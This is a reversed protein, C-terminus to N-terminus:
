RGPVAGGPIAPRAGVTGVAAAGLRAGAALAGAPGAGALWSALLGAAFADGAGTPDIVTAPVTAGRVVTRDPAAWLAGAAGLKVVVATTAVGALAAAAAEPGPAAALAGAEAATALLLDVGRLWDRFRAPGAQRLPGTSAADVSTTLGRGAATALAHRGAPRSGSGLLVYGSLHLHRADPCRDLAATVDAPSLRDAAGRDSFMTRDGGGSIVVLTGTPADPVTRVACGVGATTLEAVRDRGAPDDGTTAVLTVPVGLHALWTATNAAQGGATVRIRAPTDSGPVAPGAPRVLVDTALDGVVLVRGTM